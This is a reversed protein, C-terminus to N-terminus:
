IRVLDLNSSYENIGQMIWNPILVISRMVYPLVFVRHPWWGESREGLTELVTAIFLLFLVIIPNFVANMTTEVM